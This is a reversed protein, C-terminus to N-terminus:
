NASVIINNSVVFELTCLKMHTNFFCYSQNWTNLKLATIFTDVEATSSYAILYKM